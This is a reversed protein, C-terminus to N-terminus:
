ELVVETSCDFLHVRESMIGLQVTDGPRLALRECFLCSMQHGNLDVLLKTEVGTLETDVVRATLDGDTTFHEPRVGCIVEKGLVGTMEGGFPLQLGRESIFGTETVVGNLFNMTPSGIFGAVFKNVPDDYLDLPSGIQEVKGANMVVIKDAITMAEVQDHTVFVMTTKLRQHLSRIEARMTVRLNADLNSLPEDFLFMQPRRVIARGIAVRQRQGGSLQGPLSDLCPTLDLIKAAARVRQTIEARDVRNLKLAFAMNQEVTMHPYLVYNQFVMAVNRDKPSMDNICQGGIIMEGSTVPELGAIMRLLTTKGCGSPGVLVVLEETGIEISVDHLVETKGFLKGINKLSLVAM